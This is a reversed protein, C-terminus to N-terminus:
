YGITSLQTAKEVAEITALPLSVLHPGVSRDALTSPIYDSIRKERSCHSQGVRDIVEHFTAICPGRSIHITSPWVHISCPFRTAYQDPKGRYPTCRNSDSRSESILVSQKHCDDRLLKIFRIQNIYNINHQKVKITQLEKIILTPQV